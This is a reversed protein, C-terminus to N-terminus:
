KIRASSPSTSYFERRVPHFLSSAGFATYNVTKSINVTKCCEKACMIYAKTGAFWDFPVSRLVSGM